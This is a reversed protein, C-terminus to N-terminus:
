RAAATEKAATLAYAAAEIKRLLAALTETEAATFGDLLRQEYALAAPAVAAHLARGKATLSLRRARGDAKDDRRVIYGRAELTQAARSVAVKDMQSRAVLHQQTAEGDEQLLAILRWEPISIGFQEAYADAILRSVANSAVSLRYPLFHALALRKARRASM